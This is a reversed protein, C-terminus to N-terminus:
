KITSQTNFYNEYDFYKEIRYKLVQNQVLLATMNDNLKRTYVDLQTLIQEKTRSMETELKELRELIEKDM